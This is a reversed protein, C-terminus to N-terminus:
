KECNFQLDFHILVSIIDYRNILIFIADGTLASVYMLGYKPYESYWQVYIKIHWLFSFLFNIYM